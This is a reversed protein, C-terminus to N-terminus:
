KESYRIILKHPLCVIPNHLTDLKGMHCCSLDPCDANEVFIEGDQITIDNWGGDPTEIHIQQYSVASIDINYLVENDLVIEM